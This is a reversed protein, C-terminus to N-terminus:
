QTFIALLTLPYLRQLSIPKRNIDFMLGIDAKLFSFGHYKNPGAHTPILFCPFQFCVDDQTRDRHHDLILSLHSPHMLGASYSKPHPPVQLDSLLVRTPVRNRM